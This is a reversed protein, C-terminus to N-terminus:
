AASKSSIKWYAIAAVAASVAVGAVSYKVIRQRRAKKITTVDATEAETIFLDDIDGICDLLFEVIDTKM